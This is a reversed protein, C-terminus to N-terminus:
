YNGLVVVQKQIENESESEWVCSRVEVDPISYYKLRAKSKGFETDICAEAYKLAPDKEILENLLRILKRVQM